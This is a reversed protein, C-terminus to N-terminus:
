TLREERTAGDGSDPVRRESSGSEAPVSDGATGDSPADGGSAHADADEEGKRRMDAVLEASRDGLLKSLDPAQLRVYAELHEMMRKLIIVAHPLDREVVTALPAMGAKFLIEERSLMISWKKTAAMKQECTAFRAQARELLKKEDVVSPKQDKSSTVMQKRFLASKCLAVNEQAKRHQSRWYLVQDREIWGRMRGVESDAEAIALRLEELAKVVGARFRALEDLDTVKAAESM